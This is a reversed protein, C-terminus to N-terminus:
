LVDNMVEIHHEIRDTAFGQLPGPADQLGTSAEDSNGGRALARLIGARALREENHLRIPGLEGLDGAQDVGPLQPRHHIDDEREGLGTRRILVLGGVALNDQADGVSPTRRLEAITLSYGRGPRVQDNPWMAL